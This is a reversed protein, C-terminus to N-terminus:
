KRCAWECLDPLYVLTLVAAAFVTVTILEGVRDIPTKPQPTM